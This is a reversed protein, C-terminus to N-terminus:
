GHIKTLRDFVVEICVFIASVFILGAPFYLYKWAGSHLAPGHEYFAIGIAVLYSAAFLGYLDKQSLQEKLWIQWPSLGTVDVIRKDIVKYAKEEGDIIGGAV